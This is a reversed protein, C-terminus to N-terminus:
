FKFNVIDFAECKLFRLAAKMACSCPFGYISAREFNISTDGNSIHTHTHTHKFLNGFGGFKIQTKKANEVPFRNSKSCM